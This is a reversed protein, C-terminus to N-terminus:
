GVGHAAAAGGHAIALDKVSVPPDPYAPKPYSGRGAYPKTVPIADGLQATTTSTTVVVYRIDRDTLGQRFEAIQGYGADATLVPPALGRRGTRRADGVRHAV